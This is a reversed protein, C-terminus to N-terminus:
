RTPGREEGSFAIFVIRRKPKFDSQTLQHAVELLSATGSANDDAGNHIEKTWPALSGQGGMGLHDYHAGVIITEHALPGEAELVGIVNKVTARKSVVLSNGEVTWDGLVQSRPKLTEDISKEITALDTKMSQKILPEITARLCFYVPMNRYKSDVGAGTFPLLSDGNGKLAASLTDIRKAQNQIDQRHKTRQKEDPSELKSYEDHLTILTEIAKDWAAQQAKQTRNLESHDNVIVVAAAGHQFANSVKTVFLAHRSPSTGDFLSHPNSQQPEKRLIVM